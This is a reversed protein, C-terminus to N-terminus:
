SMIYAAWIISKKLQMIRKEEQKKQAIDIFIAMIGAAIGSCGVSVLITEAGAIGYPVYSLLIILISIVISAKYVRNIDSFFYDCM